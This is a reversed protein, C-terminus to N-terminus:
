IYHYYSNKSIENNILEDSNNIHFGNNYFKKELSSIKVGSIKSILAPNVNSQVLGLLASNMIGELEFTDSDPVLEIIDPHNKLFLCFFDNLREVSFTDPYLFDLLRDNADSKKKLNNEICEISFVIDRKLGNPIKITVSNVVVSRYDSSFDNIRLYSIISKKAPAILTLKIFIRLVLFKYFKKIENTKSLKSLDNKEFYSDLSEIIQILEADSWIGREKVPVLNYRHTLSDKFDQYSVMNNFIDNTYHKSVLFKYFSKIAELHNEMSTKTNIKAIRNYHGVCDTIDEIVINNPQNAKGIINLYDVFKSVHNIYTDDFELFEKKWLNMLDSKM